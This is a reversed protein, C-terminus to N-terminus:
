KSKSLEQCSKKKHPRPLPLGVGREKFFISNNKQKCENPTRTIKHGHVNNFGHECNVFSNFSNILNALLSVIASKGSWRNVKRNTATGSAASKIQPIMNRKIFHKQHLFTIVKDLPRRPVFDRM